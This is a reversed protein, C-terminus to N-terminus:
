SPITTREPPATSRPCLSLTMPNFVSTIKPIATAIITNDLAVVFTTMCLGFTLIGLAFAKPYKSEDDEGPEGAETSVTAASEKRALDQRKEDDTIANGHTSSPQQLQNISIQDSSSSRPPHSTKDDSIDDVNIPLVPLKEDNLSPINKSDETTKTAEPAPDSVPDRDTRSPAKEHDADESGSPARGKLFGPRM